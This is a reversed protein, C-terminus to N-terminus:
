YVLIFVYDCMIVGESSIFISTGFNNCRNVFFYLIWLEKFYLVTDDFHKICCFIVVSFIYIKEGWIYMFLFFLGVSLVTM